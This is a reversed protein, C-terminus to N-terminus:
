LHMFHMCHRFKSSSKAYTIHTFLNQAEQVCSHDMNTYEGVTLDATMWSRTDTVGVYRFFPFNQVIQIQSFNDFTVYVKNRSIM